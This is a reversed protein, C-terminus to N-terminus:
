LTGSKYKMTIREPLMLVSAIGCVFGLLHGLNTWNLGGWLIGFVELVVFFAILVMSQWHLTGWRLFWFLGYKPRQFLGILLTLPFIALYHIVVRRSPMLMLTIALVAYVVGSAGLLYGSSFIRGLVGVFLIVGVCTLVYNGNGIRRNVANGFVWLYWMNFLLHYFDAHAFAYTFISLIGTGSGVWMREPSILLYALLNMVIFLGNAVPVPGRNARNLIEMPIPFFM